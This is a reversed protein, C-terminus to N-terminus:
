RTTAPLSKPPDPRFVPKWFGASFGAVAWYAFGGVIGAAVVSMPDLPRTLAVGGGLLQWGVWASVVCNLVHYIWSRIAFAEAILIGVLMPMLMFGLNFLLVVQQEFFAVMADFTTDVFDSRIATGLRQWSAIFVVVAEAVAAAFYGLPVLLVRLLLRGLNDM